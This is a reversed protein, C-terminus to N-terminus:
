LKKLGNEAAILIPDYVPAVSPTYIYDVQNLRELDFGATIATALVNIRGVVSFAGMGQAGLLRGSPKEFVLTLTNQDGGPYYGAKDRSTITVKEAKFGEEIAQPLFLGTSAIYISYVKTGQSGLIKQFPRNGGAINEGAIRGQKNAQTGLPVYYPKNTILHTCATCDGCAWIAEDSTQQYANVRIAGFDDIELGAQRALAVEPTVGTGLLIVDAKIKTGRNTVLGGARGKELVIEQARHGLLLNVGHNKFEEEVKQSYALPFQHLLREKSEILTIQKDTLQSLQEAVELGINGGGVIAIARNEFVAKKLYIGDEVWRLTFVGPTLRGIHDKANLISPVHPRAGTAIVLKDYPTEFTKGTLLNKGRVVKQERDIETVEHRIYAKIGREEDLAKPSLTILAEPKKILDSVFYPLGCSGYSTYGSKEYAIIDMEPKMKRAKAGASLGAATGGIIVLKEAM